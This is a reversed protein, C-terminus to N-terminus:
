KNRRQPRFPESCSFAVKALDVSIQVLTENPRLKIDFKNTFKKAKHADSVYSAVGKSADFGAFYAGTPVKVVYLDVISDNAVINEQM